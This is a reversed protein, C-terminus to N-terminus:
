QHRDLWDFLDLSWSSKVSKVNHSWECKGEDWVYAANQLMLILGCGQWSVM